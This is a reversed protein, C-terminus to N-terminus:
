FYTNAIYDRVANGTSLGEHYDGTDLDEDDQDFEAGLDPENHDIAINHLVLCAAIVTCVREPTTGTEGPIVHLRRKLIGFAREIASRTSNLSRNLAREKKTTPDHFPTTM